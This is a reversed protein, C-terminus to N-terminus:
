VVTRGRCSDMDYLDMGRRRFECRVVRRDSDEERAHDEEMGRGREGTCRATNEEIDIAKLRDVMMPKSGGDQRHHPRETGQGDDGEVGSVHHTLPSPSQQLLGALPIPGPLLTSRVLPTSPPTTFGVTGAMINPPTTHLHGIERHLAQLSRHVRNTVDDPLLDLSDQQNPRMGSLGGGLGALGGVGRQSQLSPRPHQLRHATPLYRSTGILNM